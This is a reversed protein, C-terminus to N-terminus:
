NMILRSKSESIAHEIEARPGFTLDARCNLSQIIASSASEKKEGLMDDLLIFHTHNPDLPCSDEDLKPTRRRYIKTTEEGTRMIEYKATKSPINRPIKELVSNVPVTTHDDTQSIISSSQTFILPALSTQPILDVSSEFPLHHQQILYQHDLVFLVISRM